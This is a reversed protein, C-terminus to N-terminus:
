KAADLALNLRALNIREGGVARSPHPESAEDVLRDIRRKMADDGKREAVIRDIQARAVVADIWVVGDSDPDPASDGSQFYAPGTQSEVLREIAIKKEDPLSQADERSFWWAAGLGGLALAVLFARVPANM